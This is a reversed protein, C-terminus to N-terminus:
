FKKSMKKLFSIAYPRISVYVEKNEGDEQNQLIIDIEEGKGREKSTHILTEDLGVVLM